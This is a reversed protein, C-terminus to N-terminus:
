AQGTWAFRWELRDSQAAQRQVETASSGYIGMNFCRTEGPGVTGLPNSANGNDRVLLQVLGLVDGNSCDIMQHQVEAFDGLEGPGTGCTNDYLSEDGTCGLEIDNIDEALVSLSLTRSGVNRICYPYVQGTDVGPPGTVTMAATLDESFTKCTWPTGAAGGSALAMQIDASAVLAGSEVSNTDSRATDSLAAFLGTGGLLVIIGGVAALTLLIPRRM